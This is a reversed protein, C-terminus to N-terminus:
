YHLRHKGNKIIKLKMKDSLTDYFIINSNNNNLLIKIKHPIKIQSVNTNYTLDLREIKNTLNILSKSHKYCSFMVVSNPLYDQAIDNKESIIQKIKNLNLM